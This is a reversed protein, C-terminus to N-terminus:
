YVETGYLTNNIVNCMWDRFGHVLGSRGHTLAIRYVARDKILINGHIATSNDLDQTLIVLSGASTYRVSTSSKNTKLSLGLARNVDNIYYHTFIGRKVCLMSDIFQYFPENGSQRAEKPIEALKACYDYLAERFNIVLKSRGRIFCFNYVQGARAVKHTKNDSGVVNKSRRIYYQSGYYINQGDRRVRINSSVNIVRDLDEMYYWPEDDIMVSRINNFLEKVREM